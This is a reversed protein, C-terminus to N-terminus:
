KMEELLLRKFGIDRLLMMSADIGDPEGPHIGNNILIIAKGSAKIKAIDFQKEASYIVLHLPEGCDTEGMVKIQIEDFHTALKEFYRIGESYEATETHGSLEYRTKFDDYATMSMEKKTICSTLSLVIILLSLHKM